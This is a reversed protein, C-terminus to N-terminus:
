RLPPHEMNVSSAPLHVSTVIAGIPRAWTAGIPLAASAEAALYSRPLVRTGRTYMCLLEM